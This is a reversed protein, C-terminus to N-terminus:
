VALLLAEERKDAGRHKHLATLTEEPFGKPPQWLNGTRTMLEFSWACAKGTDVQELQFGHTLEWTVVYYTKSIGYWFLDGEFVPYGRWEASTYGKKLWKTQEAKRLTDWDEKVYTGSFMSITCPCVCSDTIDKVRKGPTALCLLPLVPKEEAPNALPVEVLQGTIWKGKVSLGNPKRIKEKGGICSSFGRYLVRNCIRYVV